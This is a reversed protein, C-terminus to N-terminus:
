KRAEKQAKLAAKYSAKAEKKTSAWEGQVDRYTGYAGDWVSRYMRYRYAHRWGKGEAKYDRESELKPLGEGCLYYAFSEGFEAALYEDYRTRKPPEPLMEIALARGADTTCFVIDGPDLFGPTHARAILGLGELAKLDAMAYHGTDAVYHNRYPTRQDIRLGLTHQLLAVQEKTAAQM